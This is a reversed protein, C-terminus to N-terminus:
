EGGEGATVCGIDADGAAEAKLGLRLKPALAKLTGLSHGV